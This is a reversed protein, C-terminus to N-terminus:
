CDCALGSRYLNYALLHRYSQGGGDAMGRIEDRLNAPLQHEDEYTYGILEDSSLGLGAIAEWFVDLNTSIAEPLRRGMQLGREYPSNGQKVKM